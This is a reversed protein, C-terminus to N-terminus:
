VPLLYGRFILATTTDTEGRSRRSHERIGNGPVEAGDGRRVLAYSPNGMREYIQKVM